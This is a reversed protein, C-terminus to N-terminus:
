SLKGFFEKAQLGILAKQYVPHRQYTAQFYLAGNQNKNQGAPGYTTQHIEITKSPCNRISPHNEKM